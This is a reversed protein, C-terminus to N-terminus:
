LEATLMTAVETEKLILDRSVLLKSPGLHRRLLRRHHSLWCEVEILVEVIKESAVEVKIEVTECQIWLRCPCIM